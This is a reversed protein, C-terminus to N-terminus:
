PPCISNGTCGTFITGVTSAGTFDVNIFEVNTFDAGDLNTNIFDVDFIFSTTFDANIFSADSFDSDRIYSNVFITNDSVSDIFKVLTIDSNTFNSGTLDSNTLDVNYFNGEGSFDSNTIISNTISTDHIKSSSGGFISSSLNSNDLISNDLEFYPSVISNSLNINTADTNTIEFGNANLNSFDANIVNSNIIQSYSSTTLTLNEAIINTVTSAIIQISSMIVNSINLRDGISGDDYGVSGSMVSGSFDCGSGDSNYFRVSNPSDTFICNRVDSGDRFSPSVNVAGSFSTDNITVNSFTVGGLDTGEFTSGHIDTGELEDETGVLSCNGFNTFPLFEGDYEDVLGDLDNDRGDACIDTTNLYSTISQLTAIEDMNVNFMATHTIITDNMIDLDYGILDITGNTIGDYWDQLVLIDATNTDVMSVTTNIDIINTGIDATNIGINGVNTDILRSYTGIDIVNTAVMDITKDLDDRMIDFDYELLKNLTYIIDNYWNLLFLIDSENQTIRIEHDTTNETELYLLRNEHSTANAQIGTVLELTNFRLTTDDDDFHEPLEVEQLPLDAEKDDDAYASSLILLMSSIVFISLLKM